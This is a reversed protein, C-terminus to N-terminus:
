EQGAGEEEVDGRATRALNELYFASSQITSAQQQVTALEQQLQQRHRDVRYILALLIINTSLYGATMAWFLLASDVSM